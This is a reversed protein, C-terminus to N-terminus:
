VVYKQQYEKPSLGEHRKFFRGLYSQDPFSLRDAIEQISFESAQLLVKIELTVFKDIVKKAPEGTLNRCISTLYKTSICLENAYFNVERESTCHKSVLHIFKKLIEEQRSGSDLQVHNLKRRIKDYLDLLFCQLHNRAIQYRFINEKDAYIIAAGYMLGEIAKARTSTFIYCPEERLFGFFNADFRMCAEHFMDASFDFYDACCDDSVEHVRVISGPMLVVQTHPVVRYEKLNISIHAWGKRCLYISGGDLKWLQKKVSSLNENSGAVFSEQLPTFITNAQKM